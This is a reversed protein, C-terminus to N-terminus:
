KKQNIQFILEAKKDCTWTSGEEPESWGTVFFNRGNGNRDFKIITGIQYFHVPLPTPPVPTFTPVPSPTPAPITQTFKCGSLAYLIIFLFIFSKMIIFTNFKFSKNKYNYGSFTEICLIV